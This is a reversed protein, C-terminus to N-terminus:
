FPLQLQQCPRRDLMLKVAAKLQNSSAGKCLMDSIEDIESEYWVPARGSILNVPPPFTGNNIRELVDREGLKTRQGLQSKRITRKELLQM